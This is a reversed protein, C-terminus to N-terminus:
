EPQLSGHPASELDAWHLNVPGGCSFLVFEVGDPGPVEPGYSFGGKVQRIDFTYYQGEFGFRMDGAMIFYLTDFDHWHEGATYAPEFRTRLASLRGELLVQVPQTPRGVPDVFAQWPRADASIHLSVSGPQLDEPLELRSWTCGSDGATISLANRRWVLDGRALQTGDALSATGTQVLAFGTFDSTVAPSLRIASVPFPDTLLALEQIGAGTPRWTLQGPSLHQWTM